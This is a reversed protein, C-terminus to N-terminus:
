KDYDDDGWLLTFTEYHDDTYYINWDNTDDDGSYIIREAGRKNSNLTNIDCEHYERDEVVPLVEEYNGFYDGGICKGSIVLHLAGGEWGQKRAEKKTMYNSPLCHYQVLYACVEDKTDYTGDEDLEMDEYYSKSKDDGSPKGLSLSTKGLSLLGFAECAGASIQCFSLVFVFLFVALWNRRKMIKLRDLSMNGM